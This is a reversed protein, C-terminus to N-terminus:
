QSAWVAQEAHYHASESHTPASGEGQLRSEIARTSRELTVHDAHAQFLLTCPPTPISRGPQLSSLRRSSGYRLLTELTVFQQGARSMRPSYCTFLHRNGAKKEGAVTRGSLILTSSVSPGNNELQREGAVFWSRWDM